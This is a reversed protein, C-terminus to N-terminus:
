GMVKIGQGKPNKEMLEQITLAKGGAKEIKEQATKSFRSAAISLPKTLEGSGLVNGPVLITEKSTAFREIDFLNVEFSKRRPRNLGRASAKWLPAKRSGKGLSNILGKLAPNKDRTKM